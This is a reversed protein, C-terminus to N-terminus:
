MLFKEFLYRDLSDKAREAFKSVHFCKRGVSDSCPLYLIQKTDLAVFAMLDISKKYERKVSFSYVKSVHPTKPKEGKRQVCKNKLTPRETTKVQIKIVKDGVCAFVDASGPFNNLGAEIGRFAFDLCVLLEGARGVYSSQLRVNKKNEIKYNEIIQQRKLARAEQSIRQM